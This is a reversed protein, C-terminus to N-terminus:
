HACSGTVNGLTANAPRLISDVNLAWDPFEGLEFFSYAWTNIALLLLAVHIVTTISGVKLQLVAFM